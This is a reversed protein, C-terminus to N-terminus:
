INNFMTQGQVLYKKKKVKFIVELKKKFQM